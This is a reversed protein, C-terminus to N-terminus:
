INSEVMSYNFLMFDMEYFKNILSISENNLYNMYNEKKESLINKQIEINFDLYGLNHMDKILTETRIITINEYLKNNEDTVFIYQPLNHNDLNTRTLYNKIINLVTEKDSNICILRFFFLDSLLRYYPNRVIALYQLTEDFNVGLVDKYKLIISYSLHQLSSNYNGRQKDSESIDILQNCNPAHSYLSNNDLPINYNKSFYAEVSTGGTKPIHIFLLNINDNKFYPM